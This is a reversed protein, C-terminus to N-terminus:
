AQDSNILECVNEDFVLGGADRFLQPFHERWWSVAEPSKRALVTMADEINVMYGNVPEDLAKASVVGTAETEWSDSLGLALPLVLGVWQERISQPAEGPPVDIIRIQPQNASAPSGASPNEPFRVAGRAYFFLWIGLLGFASVILGAVHAGVPPFSTVYAHSGTKTDPSFQFVPTKIMILQIGALLLCIAFLLIEWANDRKARYRKIMQRM